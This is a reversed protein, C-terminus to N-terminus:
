TELCLQSPFIQTKVLLKQNEISLLWPRRRRVAETTTTSKHILQGM